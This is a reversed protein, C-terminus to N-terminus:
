QGFFQGKSGGSWLPDSGFVTGSGREANQWINVVSELNVNSNTVDGQWIGSADKGNNFFGGWLNNINGGGSMDFTEGYNLYADFSAQPGSNGSVVIQFCTTYGRSYGFRYEPNGILKANYNHKHITRYFVNGRTYLVTGCGDKYGQQFTPTGEPTRMYGGMLFPSDSDRLWRCNVLLLVLLLTIINKITVASFRVM